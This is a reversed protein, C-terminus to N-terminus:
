KEKDQRDARGPRAGWLESHRIIEFGTVRNGLSMAHAGGGGVADGSEVPILRRGELVGVDRRRGDEIGGFRLEFGTGRLRRIRGGITIRGGGRRFAWRPAGFFARRDFRRQWRIVMGAVAVVM